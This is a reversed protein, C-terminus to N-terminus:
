KQLTNLITDLRHTYTHETKTRIMARNAIVKRESDMSLYSDIKNKLQDFNNFDYFIVEEDEKYFTELGNIRPYITFAGRGQCEFLRDSSYWPYSFNKCLTDGIVIKASAYLNNLEPGRVSPLGGGGYHGFREGYNEKLWNILTPRYPWEPHYGKSGTFIIEHPYKVPNQTGTFCDDEFVGPPLFHGKCNTEKNLWEAMLMDVTFFHDVKFFPHSYLQSERAIGMYLDLHYAFSIIGKAKFESLIQDIGETKWGHTHVWFFLDTSHSLIEDKKVRGEQLCVVEHGLKQLTKKYYNESSFEAEFNGLFIIKM